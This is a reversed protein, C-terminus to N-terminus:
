GPPPKKRKTLSKSVQELFSYQLTYIQLIELNVASELPGSLGDFAWECM